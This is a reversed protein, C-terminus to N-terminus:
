KVVIKTAQSGIAVVYVGQPVRINASAVGNQCAVMQGAANYVFIDAATEREVVISGNRAFVGDITEVMEIADPCDEVVVVCKASVGSGDNATATIVAEGIAVPTVLGNNVTAVKTSSSKWTISKDEADEPLVTATLQQTLKDCTRFTLTDFDLAISTVKVCELVTVACEATFGGDVTTATIVATGPKYGYVVGKDSAIAVTEDSSTWVVKPNTADEPLVTATLAVGNDDCEKVSISLQDLSIETVSRRVFVRCSASYSDDDVSTATIVASGQGVGTIEGTAADVTVIAESSSKWVLSRNTPNEPTFTAVLMKKDGVEITDNAPLSVGEVFVFDCNLSSTYRAATNYGIEIDYYTSDTTKINQTAFAGFSKTGTGYLIARSSYNVSTVRWSGKTGKSVKWNYASTLEKLDTGSTGYGVYKSGHKITFISDGVSTFTFAEADDLTSVMKYKGSTLAGAFKEVGGYDAYIRFESKTTKAPDFLGSNPRNYTYVAWLTTDSTIETEVLTIPEFTEADNVETLSFGIFPMRECGFLSLDPNLHEGEYIKEELIKENDADRYTITFQQLAVFEVNVTIAETIDSITTSSLTGATDPAITIEGLKYGTAPTAVITVSGGHEVETAIEVDGDGTKNLTVGYKNIEWQAYLTMSHMEVTSKDTYTTGTGDALTNWGTFHYGIKEFAVETLEQSTLTEAVLDAMEGTADADNKDFVITSNKPEISIVIENANYCKGDKAAQEVIVTFKGLVSGEFNSGALTVDADNEALNYIIDNGNGEGTILTALDIQATAGVVTTDLLLTANKVETFPAATCCASMWKTALAGLRILQIPKAITKYAAFWVNASNYQITYSTSEVNRLTVNTDSFSATWSSYDNLTTSETLKNGGATPYALYKGDHVFAFSNDAKGQEVTFIYAGAPAETYKAAIFRNNTSDFTGFEVSDGSVIMVKDGVALSTMKQGGGDIGNAFVAYITEGDAAPKYTFPVLAPAETKPESASGYPKASWGYFDPYNETDCSTVEAEVVAALAEGAYVQTTGIVADNNSWNITYKTDEAFNATITVAGVINKVVQGDITGNEAPDISLNAFHYHTAPTTTVVISDGHNVTEASLTFTGNLEEGKTVAYNNIEWVAYLTTSTTLEITQKESYNVKGDASTAWGLFHYGTRVFGNEALEISGADIKQEAMDGTADEANRDYILSIKGTVVVETSATVDCFDADGSWTAVINATGAAVATVIGTTADVTAVQENSSAFSLTGKYGANEHSITPAALTESVDADISSKGEAYAYAIAPQTPWADCCYTVYLTAPPFQTATSISIPGVAINGSNQQYLFRVYITGYPFPKTNTLTSVVSTQSGSVDWTELTVFSEENTNTTSYQLLVSSGAGVGGGRRNYSFTVKEPNQINVQIYDANNAIKIGYTGSYTETVNTEVREDSKLASLSGTSSFEEAKVRAEDAFAAYYTTHATPTTTSDVFTIESSPEKGINEEIWGAFYPYETGCAAVEYTPVTNGLPLEQEIKTQESGYPTQWTIVYSTPEVTVPVQVAQSCYEVAGDDFVAQTATITAEGRTVGTILGDADVQAITPDSSSFLITNGNGAGANLLLKESQGVEVTVSSTNFALEAAPAACKGVSYTIFWKILRFQKKATNANQFFIPQDSTLYLNDVTLTDGNWTTSKKEGGAIKYIMTPTYNDTVIFVIKRIVVDGLPTFTISSGNGKGSSDYYLRLSNDAGSGVAPSNTGDNKATSYSFIETSTGDIEDSITAKEAESTVFGNKENTYLTVASAHGAACLLALVILWFQTHKKM